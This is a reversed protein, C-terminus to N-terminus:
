WYSEYTLEGGGLGDSDRFGREHLREVVDRIMGPNGCLMIRSDDPLLTHGAMEELSGDRLSETIHGQTMDPVAERSIFPLFTFRDPHRLKLDEFVETYRLDDLYRAAYVLVVHRFNQWPTDTKLISVFPAVGTGTALLWLTDAPSVRKISFDGDPPDQVWIRDGVRLRSLSTSLDGELRTYFFFELPNEGPASLISYPEAIRQGDIDLGLLTYQGAEFSHIDADIQLSFLNPTWHITNSIRGQAWQSM